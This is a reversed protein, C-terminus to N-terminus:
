DAAQVDTDPEHQPEGTGIIECKGGFSAIVAAEQQERTGRDTVTVTTQRGYQNKVTMTVKGM